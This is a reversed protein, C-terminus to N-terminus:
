RGGEPVALGPGATLLGQCPVAPRQQKEVVLYVNWNERFDKKMMWTEVLSSPFAYPYETGHQLVLFSSCCFIIEEPNLPLSPFAASPSWLWLVMKKAVQLWCQTGREELLQKYDDSLWPQFPCRSVTYDLKGWEVLTLQEPGHGTLNQAVDIVFVGCAWQAVQGLAWSNM